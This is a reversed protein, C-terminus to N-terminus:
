RLDRLRAMAAEYRRQAFGYPDAPKGDAHDQWGQRWWVSHIAAGRMEAGSRDNIGKGKASAMYGNVYSVAHDVGELHGYGLNVCNSRHERRRM